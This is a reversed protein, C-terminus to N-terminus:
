ANPRGLESDELNRVMVEKKLVIKYSIPLLNDKYRYDKPIFGPEVCMTALHSWVM